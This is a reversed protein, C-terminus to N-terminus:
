KEEKKWHFITFQLSGDDEVFTMVDAIIYTRLAPLKSVGADFSARMVFSLDSDPNCLFTSVSYLLDDSCFYLLVNKIMM